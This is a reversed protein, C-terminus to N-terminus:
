PGQLRLSPRAERARAITERLRAQVEEWSLLTARGEDIERLRREIEAAWSAEYDPDREPGDPELSLILDRVLEERDQRDLELAKTLLENPISMVGGEPKV